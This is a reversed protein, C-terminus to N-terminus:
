PAGLILKPISFFPQYLATVYFAAILGVALVCCPELYRTLSRSEIAYRAKCYDAANAVAHPLKGDKEGRHFFWVVTAPLDAPLLPAISKGQEAASCMAALTHRVAPSYATLTTASLAAPLPVGNQLLAGLFRFAFGYDGRRVIRGAWPLHLAIETLSGRVRASFALYCLGGIMALVVIGGLGSGSAVNFDVLLQTLSPLEAGLQSFINEFTPLIMRGIVLFLLLGAAILLLPYGLAQQVEAELRRRERLYEQLADFLDHLGGTVEGCKVMAVFSAPFGGKALSDSLPHGQETAEAADAVWKALTKDNLSAAVQRLGEPLPVGARIMASLERSFHLLQDTSLKM